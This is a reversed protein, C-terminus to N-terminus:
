PTCSPQSRSSSPWTTMSSCPCVDTRFTQAAPSMVGPGWNAMVAAASPAVAAIAICLDSTGSERLSVGRTGAPAVLHHHGQKAEQRARDAALDLTRRLAVPDPGAFRHTFLGASRARQ